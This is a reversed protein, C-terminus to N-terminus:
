NSITFKGHNKRLITFHYNIRIDTKILNMAYFGYECIARLFYILCCTKYDVTAILSVVLCVVVVVNIM